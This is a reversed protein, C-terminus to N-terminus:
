QWIFESGLCSSVALDRLHQFESVVLAFGDAFEVNLMDFNRPKNQKIGTM